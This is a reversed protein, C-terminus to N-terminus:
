ALERVNGNRVLKDFRVEANANSVGVVDSICELAEARTFVRSGMVDSLAEFAENPYEPELVLGYEDM